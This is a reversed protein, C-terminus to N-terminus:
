LAKQPTPLDFQQGALPYPERAAAALLAVSANLDESRAKRRATRKCDKRTRKSPASSRTSPMAAWSTKSRIASTSCMRWPALSAAFSSKSGLHFTHSIANYAASLTHMKWGSAHAIPRLDGASIGFTVRKCAHATDAQGEDRLQELVHVMLSESTGKVEPDMELLWKVVVTSDRVPTLVVMGVLKEEKQAKSGPQREHKASHKQLAAEKAKSEGKGSAEQQLPHIPAVAYYYTRNELDRWPETDSIHIQAGKGAKRRKWRVIGKEVEDRTLASSGDREPDPFRRDVRIIRLGKRHAKNLKNRVFRELSHLAFTSPDVVDEKICTIASWELPQQSLVKMFENDVCCWMPKKGESQVHNIWARAVSEYQEAPCLPNGWAMAFQHEADSGNVLYGILAGRGPVSSQGPKAQESQAEPRQRWTRYQPETWASSSATGYLKLLSPLDPHVAVNGSGPEALRLMPAKGDAAAQGATSAVRGSRPQQEVARSSSSTASAGDSHMAGPGDSNSASPTHKLGHCQQQHEQKQTPTPGQEAAAASAPFCDGPEVPTTRGTSRGCEDCSRPRSHGQQSGSTASAPPSSIESPPSHGTTSTTAQQMHEHKDRAIHASPNDSNGAAHALTPPRSFSSTRTLTEDHARVDIEEEKPTNRRNPAVSSTKALAKAKRLIHLM